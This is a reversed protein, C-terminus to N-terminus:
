PVPMIDRIPQLMKNLKHGPAFRRTLTLRYGGTTIYFRDGPSGPRLNLRNGSLLFNLNYIGKDYGAALRYFYGPSISVRNSNTAAGSKHVIDLSLNAQFSGMLFFDSKIIFNYAYGAGPGIKFYSLARLDSQMTPSSLVAPVLSSDAKISGYYSEAGVLFSGASKKQKEDQFIPARYSFRDYNIIRYVSLGFLNVRIDPRIYYREPDSAALGEPDLYYGHYFQELLDVTWKRGYFHTQLDLSKTKGKADNNLFGFGVSLNATLKNYTAGFGLSFPTSPRYLFRTAEVGKRLRLATYRKTVFIRGIISRPLSSYYTTDHDATLGPSQAALMM